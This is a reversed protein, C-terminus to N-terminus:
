GREKLSNLYQQYASLEQPVPALNNLCAYDGHMKKAANDYAECADDAFEFSGLRIHEGDVDISAIWKGGVHSVGKYKSQSSRNQNSQKIDVLRLNKYRNNKRNRDEHDILWGDIDHGHLQMVMRHLLHTTPKAGEPFAGWTQAYGKPHSKWRYVVLADYDDGDVIFQSDIGGSPTQVSLFM